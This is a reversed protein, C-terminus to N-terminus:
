NITQILSLIYKDIEDAYEHMDPNDSGDTMTHIAIFKDLFAAILDIVDQSAAQLADLHQSQIKTTERLYM